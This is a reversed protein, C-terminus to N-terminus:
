NHEVRIIGLVTALWAGRDMSNELYSYQLQNDNGKWPIKGVWPDFRPRMDGANCTVEKGVSGCPFDLFAV